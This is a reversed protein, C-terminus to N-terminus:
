TQWVEEDSGFYLRARGYTQCGLVVSGQALPPQTRAGCQFVVVGSADTDDSVVPARCRPCVNGHHSVHAYDGRSYPLSLKRAARVAVGMKTGMVEEITTKPLPKFPRPRKNADLRFARRAPQQKNAFGFMSKLFAVIAHLLKTM